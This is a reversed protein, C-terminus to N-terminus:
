TPPFKVMELQAGRRPTAANSAEPWGVDVTILAAPTSVSCSKTGDVAELVSSKARESHHVARDALAETGSRYWLRGLAEPLPSKAGEGINWDSPLDM